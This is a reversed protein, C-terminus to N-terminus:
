DLLFVIKFTVIIAAIKSIDPLESQLVVSLFVAALFTILLRAM